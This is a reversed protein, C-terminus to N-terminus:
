EEYIAQMSAIKEKIHEVLMEPELVKAQDGWIMLWYVLDETLKDKTELIFHSSDLESIVAEKGFRSMAAQIMEQNFRIRIDTVQDGANPLFAAKFQDLSFDSRIFPISIIKLHRMRDLQYAEMRGTEQDKGIMCYMGNVWSLAYPEARFAKGEREYAFEKNITYNGYQFDLVHSTRIARNVLEGYTTLRGMRLPPETLLNTEAPLHSATEKSTLMRLKSVLIRKDGPSIACSSVIADMLMRLQSTEFLRNQHSYLIKGFKGKERAIEFGSKHLTAMDARITRPDMKMDPLYHKLKEIIEQMSLQNLKDTEEFLIQRLLLLRRQNSQGMM